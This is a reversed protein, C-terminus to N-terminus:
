RGWRHGGVLEDVREHEFWVDEGEFCGPAAREGGVDRPALAEEAGALVLFLMTPPFRESPDGRPEVAAVGRELGHAASWLLRAARLLGVDHVREHVLELPHGRRRPRRSPQRRQAALHPRPLWRYPVRVTVRFGCRQRM